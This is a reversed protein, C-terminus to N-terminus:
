LRYIQFYCSLSVDFRYIQRISHTSYLKIKSKRFTSPLHPADSSIRPSIPGMLYKLYFNYKLISFNSSFCQFSICPRIKLARVYPTYLVLKAGKHDTVNENRLGGSSVRLLPNNKLVSIWKPANATRQMLLHIKPPYSVFM